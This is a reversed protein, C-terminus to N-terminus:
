YKKRFGLQPEKLLTFKDTHSDFVEFSITNIGGVVFLKNKVAVSKHGFKDKVMNPMKSWTDAIHDYVEVTRLSGNINFGGSVVIRGEFVSCATYTRPQSMGSIEKWKLMKSCFKVCNETHKRM